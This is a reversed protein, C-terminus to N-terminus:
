RQVGMLVPIEGPRVLGLDRRAVLEIFEDSDRFAIEARLLAAREREITMQRELEAVNRRAALIRVEVTLLSVVLYAVILFLGFRAWRVRTRKRRRPEQRRM